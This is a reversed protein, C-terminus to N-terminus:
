ETCEKQLDELKTSKGLFRVILVMVVIGVPICIWAPVGLAAPIFGCVAATGAATAAYPIQTRVHDMLDAASGMSSMITTDSIPSCHDGFIAGSTVAAIVLIAYSDLVGGNVGMALPFAIPIMIATTGYSTGTSFSVLCSVGFIIVPLVAGSINGGVLEAIYAGTGLESMIGGSTWALLLITITLLLEKCGGMWVDIAERLTMIKQVVAMVISVVSSVIVAYLISSASDCDGFATKITEISFSSDFGGGTYYMAFLTVCIFTLIPVIANYMHLPTGEKVNMADLEKSLMPTSGEKVLDGSLRARKEAAYMPGYDRQSLIIIIVLAVAFINYFRFPVTQLFIGYTNEIAIGATTLAIGIMGIEYAVWSSIFAMDTVPGATSDIVYSLKERSIRLEDTVPRMTPGVILSNAMDEFFIIIGMIWTVILAHKTNKAKKAMTLAMAQTGGMRAMVAILGGVALIFLMLTVNWTDTVTGVLHTDCMRLFGHFVNGGNLIVAGVFVATSLSLIVQRTIFSLVIAILPVILSLVGYNVAEAETDAFAMNTIALMGIVFAAAIAWRRGSIKNKM